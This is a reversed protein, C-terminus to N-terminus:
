DRGSKRRSQRTAGNGATAHDVLAAAAEGALEAFAEPDSERLEGVEALARRLSAIRQRRMDARLDRLRTALEHLAAVRPEARLEPALHGVVAELADIVMALQRGYSFEAHIRRELEPDGANLADLPLAEGGGRPALLPGLPHLALLLRQLDALPPADTM